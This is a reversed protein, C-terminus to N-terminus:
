WARPIIKKPFNLPPMPSRAVASIPRAYIPGPREVLARLQASPNGTYPRIAEEDRQIAYANLSRLYEAVLQDKSEFHRYLTMKNTSAAAAVRM